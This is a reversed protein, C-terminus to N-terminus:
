RRPIIAHVHSFRRLSEAVAAAPARRVLPPTRRALPAHPPADRALIPARLADLAPLAPDPPSMWPRPLPILRPVSPPHTVSTPVPHSRM